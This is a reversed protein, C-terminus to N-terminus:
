TKTTLVALFVIAMKKGCNSMLKGSKSGKLAMRGQKLLVMLVFVM